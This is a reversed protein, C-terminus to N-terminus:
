APLGYSILIRAYIGQRRVAELGSNFLEVIDPRDRRFAAHLPRAIEYGPVPEIGRVGLRKVLYAALGADMLALGVEGAALAQLLAEQSQYEAKQIAPLRDAEPGYSYGELVGLRQGRFPVRDAAGGASGPLRGASPRFLATRETRLRDSFLFLKEREPNPLIQFIGDAKGSQMWQLCQKWPLLRTETAMGHFRFAAAILEQDAGRVQGGEEYQYPPYPDAVMRVRRVEKGV